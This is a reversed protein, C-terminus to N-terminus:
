HLAPEVLGRQMLQQHALFSPSQCFFGAFAVRAPEPITHRRNRGPRKEPSGVVTADLM